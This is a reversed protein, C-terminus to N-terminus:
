QMTSIWKQRDMRPRDDQSPVGDDQALYAGLADEMMKSYEMMTVFEAIAEKEEQKRAMEEKQKKALEAEQKKVWEDKQKKRSERLEQELKKRAM